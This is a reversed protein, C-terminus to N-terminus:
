LDEPVLWGTKLAHVVAETRSNVHFKRFISTLHTQVTRDSLYMTGAIERTTLGSGAQKLVELERGTLWTESNDPENDGLLAIQGNNLKRFTPLDMVAQGNCISRIASLIEEQSARKLLLGDLGVELAALVRPISAKDTLGLIGTTPSVAKIEGVLVVNELGPLGLEVVAVDPKLRGIIDVGQEGTYAIGLTEMDDQQALIWRLGECFVPEAVAIVVRIKKM